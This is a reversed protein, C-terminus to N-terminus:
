TASMDHLPLLNDIKMKGVEPIHVLPLGFFDAEPRYLMAMSSDSRVIDFFGPSRKKRKKLSRIHSWTNCTYPTGRRRTTSALIMGVMTEPLADM